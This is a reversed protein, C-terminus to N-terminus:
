LSASGPIVCITLAIFRPICTIETFLPGNASANGESISIAAYLWTRKRNLPVTPPPVGIKSKAFFYNSLHVFLKM